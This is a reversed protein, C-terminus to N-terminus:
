QWCEGNEGGSVGESATCVLRSWLAGGIQWEQELFSSKRRASGIYDHVVSHASKRLILSLLYSSALSPSLSRLPPVPASPRRPTLPSSSPDSGPSLDEAQARYSPPAPSSGKPPPPPPPDLSPFLLFALNTEYCYCHLV